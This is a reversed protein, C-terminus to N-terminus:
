LERVASLNKRVMHTNPHEEGLIRKCDALTQELLPIAEVVRGASKYAGALNNRSTLTSPHEDGM